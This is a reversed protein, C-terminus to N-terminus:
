VYNNLIENLIDEAVETKTKLPYKKLIGNKHIITVKNTDHKFGANKEKLSNLVIFDLNKKNLKQQANEIENETEMAFGVLIQKDKKQKGLTALIDKTKTLKLELTNGEKKIKNQAKNQPTFDAVAASMICIDKNPFSQTVAEFMEQASRVNIIKINPTSIQQTTPGLILEVDAGMEAAKEAIAIGMKGSSHNGIFRVPDIDEYTPGATVLIKKGKLPGKTFFRNLIDFIKEPEEMRGPGILGSALEGKTAPIIHNGYEKLTKINKQTAPHAYMDLDMAPAIFVPSKASLYVATLFNDSLGQAMKALTNATAPAILILDAWTGWEVHNNWTGTQNKVFETVVPNESLTALTVPTVFDLASPTMMVRVEAGKKKLLRVLLPIKYAAIGGSIGIIIKKGTLPM